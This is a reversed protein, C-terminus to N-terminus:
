KHSTRRTSKLLVLGCSYCKLATFHLYLTAARREDVKLEGNFGVYSGQLEQQWEAEEESSKHCRKAQACVFVCTFACMLCGLLYHLMTSLAWLKHISQSPKGLLAFVIVLFQIICKSHGQSSPPCLQLFQSASYWICMHIIRQSKLIDANIM